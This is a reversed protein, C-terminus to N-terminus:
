CSSSAVMFIFKLIIFEIAECMTRNVLWDWATRFSSINRNILYRSAPESWITFCFFFFFLEARTRNKLWLWFIERAICEDRIGGWFALTPSFSFFILYTAHQIKSIRTIWAFSNDDKPHKHPQKFPCFIVTKRRKNKQSVNETKTHWTEGGVRPLESNHRTVHSASCGRARERM